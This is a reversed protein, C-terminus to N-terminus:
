HELPEAELEDLLGELGLPRLRDRERALVRAITRESVNFREGLEQPTAGNWALRTAERAEAETLARPRSM